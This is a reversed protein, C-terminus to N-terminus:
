DKKEELIETEVIKEEYNFKKLKDSNRETNIM